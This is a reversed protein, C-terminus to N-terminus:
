RIELILYKGTITWDLAFIRNKEVRVAHKAIALIAMARVDESCSTVPKVDVGVPAVIYTYIGVVFCASAGMM